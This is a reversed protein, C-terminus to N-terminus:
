REVKGLVIGIRLKVHRIRSQDVGEAAAEWLSVLEAPFDLGTPRFDEDLEPYAEAAEIERTGYFCKSATSVFVKPPHASANMAKVLQKTTEVRSSIVEARYAANWRRSLNLIHHGALNVM